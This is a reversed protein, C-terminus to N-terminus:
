EKKQNANIGYNLRNKLWIKFEEERMGSQGNHYADTAIAQVSGQRYLKAKAKKEPREARIGKHISAVLDKHCCAKCYPQNKAALFSAYCTGCTLVYKGPKFKHQPSLEFKSKIGEGLLGASIVKKWDKFVIPFEDDDTQVCLKFQEEVPKGHDTVWLGDPQIHMLTAIVCTDEDNVICVTGSEVTKPDMVTM